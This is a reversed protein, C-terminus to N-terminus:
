DAICAIFKSVTEADTTYPVVLRIIPEAGPWKHFEFGAKEMAQVIEPEARVFIENAQVPHKLDAGARQSLADAIQAAADNAQAALTLWLDNHVYAELQASLYRMKSLLHGGRMRRRRLSEHAARKEPPRFDIVAEAAMAGNKTAGFSMVDVGARWTIDAPDCKLTCLANAFRAGDMHLALGHRKALDGFAEIESLAYVTGAETSQTLSLAAPAPEHEGHGGMGAIMADLHAPDIKGHAGPLPMLKAGGTYFEPAGCEDTHIHSEAHCFVAGYPPALESLSLANAATGTAVPYVSVDTAFLESYQKQLRATIDDAGYSHASGRNARALADMIEPAAPAENDSRFNM